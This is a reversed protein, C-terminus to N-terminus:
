EDGSGRQVQSAFTTHKGVTDIDGNGVRATRQRMETEDIQMVM